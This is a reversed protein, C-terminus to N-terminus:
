STMNVDHLLQEGFLIMKTYQFTMKKYEKNYINCLM